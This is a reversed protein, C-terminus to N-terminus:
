SFQDSLNTTYASFGNGKLWAELQEVTGGVYKYRVEGTSPSTFSSMAVMGDILDVDLPPVGDTTVHGGNETGKLVVNYVRGHTMRVTKGARAHANVSFDVEIISM